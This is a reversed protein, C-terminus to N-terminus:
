SFCFVKCNKKRKRKNKIAGDWNNFLYKKTFCCDHVYRTRFYDFCFDLMLYFVLLLFRIAIFFFSFIFQFKPSELFKKSIDNFFLLPLIRLLYARHGFILM